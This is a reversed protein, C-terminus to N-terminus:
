KWTPSDGYLDQYTTLVSKRLHTLHMKNSTSTRPLSLNLLSDVYLFFINPELCHIQRAQALYLLSTELDNADYALQGLYALHQYSQEKGHCSIQCCLQASSIYQSNYLTEVMGGLSYPSIRSQLWEDIDGDAPNTLLINFLNLSDFSSISISKIESSTFQSCIHKMLELIILQESSPTSFSDTPLFAFLSTLLKKFSYFYEPQLLHRNSLLLDYAFQANDCACFRYLYLALLPPSLSSEQIVLKLQPLDISLVGCSLLSLKADVDYLYNGALSEIPALELYSIDAAFSSKSKAVQSILRSILRLPFDKLLPLYQKLLFQNNSLQEALFLSEALKVKMFCSTVSNSSQVACNDTFLQNSIDLFTSYNGKSLSSFYHAALTHQISYWSHSASVPLSNLDLQEILQLISESHLESFYQGFPRSSEFYGNFTTISQNTSQYSKNSQNNTLILEILEYPMSSESASVLRQSYVDWHSLISPYCSPELYSHVDHGFHNKFYFISQPIAITNVFSFYAEVSDSAMEQMSNSNIYIHYSGYIPLDSSKSAHFTDFSEIFINRFDSTLAENIASIQPKDFLKSQKSTFRSLLWRQIFLNEPLDILICSPINDYYLSLLLSLLGTGGGVELTLSPIKGPFLLDFASIIQTAIALDKLVYSSIPKGNLLFDQRTPLESPFLDILKFLINKRQESWDSLWSLDGFFLSDFTHSGVRSGPEYMSLLEHESFPKVGKKDLSQKWIDSVM